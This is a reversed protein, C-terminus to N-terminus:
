EVGEDMVAKGYGQAVNRENFCGRSTQWDRAFFVLDADAMLKLSEALYKIGISSPTGTFTESIISNIIQADPFEALVKQTCRGWSENFQEQSVGNMPLSIFVKM